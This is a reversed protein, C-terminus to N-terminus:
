TTPKMTAYPAVFQEYETFSAELTAQVEGLDSLSGAEQVLFAEGCAYAHSFLPNDMADRYTVVAFLSDYCEAYMQFEKVADATLQIQVRLNGVPDDDEDEDEDADVVEDDVADEPAGDDEQDDEDDSDLSTSIGPTCGEELDVEWHVAAASLRPLFLHEGNEGEGPVAFEITARMTHTHTQTM